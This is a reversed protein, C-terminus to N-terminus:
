KEEIPNGSPYLLLTPPRSQHRQQLPPNSCTEQQHHPSTKNSNSGMVSNLPPPAAQSSKDQSTAINVQRDELATLLRSFQSEISTFYEEPKARLPAPVMTILDKSHIIKRLHHISKNLAEKETNSSINQLLSSNSPSREQPHNPALTARNTESPTKFLKEWQQLDKPTDKLMNYLAHRERANLTEMFEVREQGDLSSYIELIGKTSQPSKFTAASTSKISTYVVELDTTTDEEERQVLDQISAQKNLPTTELRSPPVSKESSPTSYIYLPIIM